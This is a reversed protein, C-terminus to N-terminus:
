PFAKDGKRHCREHEMCSRVGAGRANESPSIPAGSMNWEGGPFPLLFSFPHARCVVNVQVGPVVLCTLFTSKYNPQVPVITPM